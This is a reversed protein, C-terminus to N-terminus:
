AIPSFIFGFLSGIASIIFLCIITSFTNNIKWKGIKLTCLLNSVPNITISLVLSIFFYVILLQIKFIIYFCLIVFTLLLINQLSKKM